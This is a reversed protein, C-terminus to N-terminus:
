GHLTGHWQFCSASARPSPALSVSVCAHIPIYPLTHSHLCLHAAMGVMFGVYAADVQVKRRAPKDLLAAVRVSSAGADQMLAVLRSLTNGTDIIDEVQLCLWARWVASWSILKSAVPRMSSGMMVGTHTLSPARMDSSRHACQVLQLPSLASHTHARCRCNTHAGPTSMHWSRHCRAPQGQWAPWVLLVHKDKVCSMDFGSDLKLAGSSSTGMGYSSAKFFDVQLSPPHPHIRRVLDASWVANRVARTDHIGRPQPPLEHSSSLSGCQEGATFAFAGKLM